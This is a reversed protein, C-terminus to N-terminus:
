LSANGGVPVKRFADTGPKAVYNFTQNGNADVGVPVINIRASDLLYVQPGLENQQFGRVSNSGGAYLREQPPPLKTGNSSSGGQIWGASGHAVFTANRVVQRYWSLDGTFKLFRLTPDSALWPASYRVEAAAVYGRTPAVLNDTTSRQLSASGVGYLLRRQVEERDDPTCRLFVGCLIAPEAQTAGHEFNYGLQFPTRQSVDRLASVGFGFDTTRLYALREGRRETYASYAPSWHSGRINPQRITAGFRDNLKSSAISDPKLQGCLDRSWNAATPEAFGLKSVQGNLELQQAVGRFNKDTYASTVRFCDLTAWGESLDFQHLKDERLDIKVDAISDGHAWTTDLAVSVHVYATLVYLNRQARDLADDSYGDGTRFGILRLVTTSDIAPPKKGDKNVSNVAITGFRAFPGPVAQMDVEATHEAKHTSYSTFVDARPYGSNRLRERITDVASRVLSAGVRGGLRLDTARVIEDHQRVSDLGTIRLTDLILPQGENVKFTVDLATASLSKVLTDIKTDFFGNNQYWATLRAVDPALGEEPFCRKAGFVHLVRRTSSSATTVVLASLQDDSFTDNGEFHLARVERDGPDCQVDQARAVRSTTALASLLVLASIAFRAVARGGSRHVM